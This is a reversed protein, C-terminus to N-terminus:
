HRNAADSPALMRYAENRPIGFASKLIRCSTKAPIGADHLLAVLEAVAADDGVRPDREKSHPDKAPPELIIVWEGHIRERAQLEELLVHPHGRLFEEYRKTLERALVISREPLLAALDELTALLRHPSEYVVVTRPEDRAIRQFYLRRASAKRPLMGDFAFRHVPAGSAVLATLVASAGPVPEVPIGNEIAARVLPFGPDSVLPTGADSVLAIKRGERLLSIAADVREDEVGQYVSKGFKTGIGYRAFVRSTTRTDEALVLDVSRLTRLARLSIDDLNGIPLSVVYLRGEPESM